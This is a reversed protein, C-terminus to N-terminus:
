ILREEVLPFVGVNAAPSNPTLRASELSYTPLPEVLTSSLGEAEM